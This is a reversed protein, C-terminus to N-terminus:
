DYWVSAKQIYVTTSSSGANDFNFRYSKGRPLHAWSIHAQGSWGGPMAVTGVTDGGRVGDVDKVAIVNFAKATGTPTVFLQAPDKFAKGWLGGGLWYNYKFSFSTSNYVRYDATAMVSDVEPSSFTSTSLQQQEETLKIMDKLEELTYPHIEVGNEDYIKIQSAIEEKKADLVDESLISTDASAALAETEPTTSFTFGAVAALSLLVAKTKM